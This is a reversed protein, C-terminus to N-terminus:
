TLEPSANSQVVDIIGLVSIHLLLCDDSSFGAIKAGKSSYFFQRVIFLM